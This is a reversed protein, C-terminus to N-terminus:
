TCVMVKNFAMLNLFPYNGVEVGVSPIVVKYFYNLM